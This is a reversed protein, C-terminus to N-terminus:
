SLRGGPVRSGDRLPKDIGNMGLEDNLKSSKALKQGKLMSMGDQWVKERRVESPSTWFQHGLVRQSM